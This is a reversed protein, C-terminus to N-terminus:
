VSRFHLKLRRRLRWVHSVDCRCGYGTDERSAGILIDILGDGNIDGALEVDVDVLDSKSEGTIKVDGQFRFNM